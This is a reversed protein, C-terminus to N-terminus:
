YNLLKFSLLFILEKLSICQRWFSEIYKGDLYLLYRIYNSELDINVEEGHKNYLCIKKEKNYKIKKDFSLKFYNKSDNNCYAYRSFVFATHLECCNDSFCFLVLDGINYIQDRDEVKM